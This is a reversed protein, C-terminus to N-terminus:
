VGHHLQDPFLTLSVPDLQQEVRQLLRQEVLLYVSAGGGAPLCLSQGQGSQGRITRLHGVDQQVDGDQLKERFQVLYHSGNPCFRWFRRAGIKM